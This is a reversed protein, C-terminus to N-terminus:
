NVETTLSLAIVYHAGGDAIAAIDAVAEVGFCHITSSNTVANIVTGVNDEFLEEAKTEDAGLDLVVTFTVRNSSFGAPVVRTINVWGDLTRPAKMARTRVNFDTAATIANAIAERADAITM